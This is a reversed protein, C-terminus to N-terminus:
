TEECGHTFFGITGRPVCNWFWWSGAERLGKTAGSLQEYSFMKLNMIPFVDEEDKKKRRIRRRRFILVTGIGVSLIVLFGCIMEIVLLKGQIPKKQTSNGVIVFGWIEVCVMLVVCFERDTVLVHELKTGTPDQLRDM